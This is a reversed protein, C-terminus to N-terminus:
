LQILHDSDSDLEITEGQWNYYDIYKRNGLHDSPLKYLIAGVPIITEDDGFQICIEKVVKYRM